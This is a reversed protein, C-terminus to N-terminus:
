VLNNYSQGIKISNYEPGINRVKNKYLLLLHDIKKRSYLMFMPASPGLLVLVSHIQNEESKYPILSGRSCHPVHFSKFSSQEESNYPVLSGRPCRPALCLNKEFNISQVASKSRAKTYSLVAELVTLLLM